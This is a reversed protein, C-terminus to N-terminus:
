PQLIPLAHPGTKVVRRIFGDFTRPGTFLANLFAEENAALNLTENALTNTEM